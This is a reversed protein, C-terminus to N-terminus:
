RNAMAFSTQIFKAIDELAKRSEPVWGDLIHFVHLAANWEQLAAQGGAQRLHAVMRRGDDALAERASIQILVPPPSIDTAFLPSARPDARDADGLYLSVAEDMKAVPLIAETKVALSKGSLTLDTWPSIGVGGAPRIGQQTLHALLALMLGGGASDGAMVIDDPAYGLSILHDWAKIADEFPAPFQADQLLRYDVACVRVGSLKSLRVLMGLHTEGSGAMYAGGHFYLIVKDPRPKAVNIWHYRLGDHTSTLHCTFPPKRFLLRATRNLSAEAHRPTKTRQLARRVTQRTGWTALRLRFSPRDPM